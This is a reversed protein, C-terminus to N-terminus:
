SLFKPYFNFTRRLYVVMLSFIGGALTGIICISSRNPAIKEDAVVAPDIIKFVYQERVDALMTIRTQSEILQYFVQRMEILQTSVLQEELFEIANRAETVDQLKIEKNLDFVLENVWKSALVPDPWEVAVLVLGTDRDPPTVTLIGRFRRYAQLPTPAGGEQIWLQNESDYIEPDIISKETYRDWKGAFLPVVVNHTELFRGIFERSTLVAISNFIREDGSSGVNVGLIAAAGGLQAGINSSSGDNAVPALVAEARYINTLQLAYIVSAIAAFATITVILWKEAWLVALLARFDIEALNDLDDFSNQQSEPLSNQPLKSESVNSKSM